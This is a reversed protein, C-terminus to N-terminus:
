EFPNNMDPDEIELVWLDPDRAIARQIYADAKSEEVTEKELVDMWLLEDSEFDRQQSLLRVNGELDNLKVMLMGSKPDGKQIYYYHVAQMTLNHLIGEVWLKTPLRDEPM